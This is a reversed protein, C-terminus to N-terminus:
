RKPRHRGAGIGQTSSRITVEPMGELAAVVQKGLVNGEFDGTIAAVLITMPRVTREVAVVAPRPVPGGIWRRLLGILGSGKDKKRPAGQGEGVLEAIMTDANRLRHALRTLVKVAVQPKTEIQQLFESRPVVEVSLETRARASASRPARTLAGMEGFIDGKGLIALTVPGRLTDKILEVEGTLIVYVVLGQEGERFVLEGAGYFRKM